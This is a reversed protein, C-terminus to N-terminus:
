FIGRLRIAASEFIFDVPTFQENKSQLRNIIVIKQFNNGGLGLEGDGGGL